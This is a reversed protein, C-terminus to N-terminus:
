RDILLLIGALLAVIAMITDLSPINITVVHRLIILAGSILLWLSFVMVGATNRGGQGVMAVAAILLVLGIYVDGPIAILSPIFALVGLVIMGIGALKRMAITNVRM